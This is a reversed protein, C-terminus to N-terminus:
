FFHLVLVDAAVSATAITPKNEFRQLDRSRGIKLGIIELANHLKLTELM